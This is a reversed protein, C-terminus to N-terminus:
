KQRSRTPEDNEPLMYRATSMKLMTDLMQTNISRVDETLKSILARDQTSREHSRVDYTQLTEILRECGALKETLRANEILLEGIRRTEGVNIDEAYDSDDGSGDVPHNAHAHSAIHIAGGARIADFPDPTASATIKSIERPTLVVDVVDPLPTARPSPTAVPTARMDALTPSAPADTLSIPRQEIFRVASAENVVWENVQNHSAMQAALAGSQCYRQLSRASLPHRRLRRFLDQVEGITLSYKLNHTVADEAHASATAADGTASTPAAVVSHEADVAPHIVPVAADADGSKRFINLINNM